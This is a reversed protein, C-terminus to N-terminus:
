NEQYLAAVAGAPDQIVCYRGKEGSKKPGSLVKGGLELCRAVSADLDAVVIYILWHGPLDSNVGRAHCIGAAPQEAASPLMCYDQYGGMDVESVSWGVVSQYFDRIQEARDVTLDVWAISGPQKTNESM